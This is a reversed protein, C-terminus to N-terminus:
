FENKVEKVGKLSQKHQAKQYFKQLESFEGISIKDDEAFVKLKSAVEENEEAWKKLIPEEM